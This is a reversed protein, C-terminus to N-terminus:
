GTTRFPRLIRATIEDAAVRSSPELASAARELVALQRDIARLMRGCHGDIREHWHKRRLAAAGNLSYRADLLVHSRGDLPELRWHLRLRVCCPPDLLTENLKISVPRLCELVAGRRFVKGRQQAYQCGARPQATGTVLTAAGWRGRAAVDLVAAFVSTLPQVFQAEHRQKFLPADEM